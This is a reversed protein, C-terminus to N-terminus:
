RMVAVSHVFMVVSIWKKRLYLNVTQVNTDYELVKPRRFISDVDVYGSTEATAGMAYVNRPVERTKLKSKWYKFQKLSMYRTFKLMCFACLEEESMEPLKPKDTM